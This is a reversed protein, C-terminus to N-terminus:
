FACICIDVKDFELLNQFGIVFIREIWTFLFTTKIISLNLHIILILHQCIEEKLITVCLM